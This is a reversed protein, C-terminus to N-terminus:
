GGRMIDRWASDSAAIAMDRAKRDRELQTAYAKADESMFPLAKFKGVIRFTDPSTWLRYQTGGNPGVHASAYPTFTDPM